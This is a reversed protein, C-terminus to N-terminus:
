WLFLSVYDMKNKKFSNWADQFYTKSEYSIKEANKESEDLKEFLNPTLELEDKKLDM